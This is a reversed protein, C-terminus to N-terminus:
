NPTGTCAARCGWNRDGSESFSTRRVEVPAQVIRDPLIGFDDGAKCLYPWVVTRLRSFEGFNANNVVPVSEIHASSAEVAIGVFNQGCEAPPVLVTRAVQEVDHDIGIVIMASRELELGIGGSHSGVVHCGVVIWM